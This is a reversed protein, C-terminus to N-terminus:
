SLVIGHFFSRAGQQAGPNSAQRNKVVITVKNPHEANV